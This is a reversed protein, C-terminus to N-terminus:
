VLRQHTVEGEGTWEPSLSVAGNGRKEDGGGGRLRLLVNGCMSCSGLKAFAAQWHTGAVRLLFFPGSEDKGSISLLGSDSNATRSGARLAKM